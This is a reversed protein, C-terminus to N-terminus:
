PRRRRPRGNRSWYVFQFLMTSGAAHPVPPMSKADTWQYGPVPSLLLRIVTGSVSSGASNVRARLAIAATDAQGPPALMGIAIVSHPGLVMQVPQANGSDVAVAAGAPDCIAPRNAASDYAM